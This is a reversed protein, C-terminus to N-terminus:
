LTYRLVWSKTKTASVQLYLGGGDHHYGIEVMNRVSVATLRNRARSKPTKLKNNEAADNM